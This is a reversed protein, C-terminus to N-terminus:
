QRMSIEYKPLRFSHIKNNGPVPPTYKVTFTDNDNKIIDFLVDSEHQSPTIGPSCKLGISIDGFGAKSCDVTFYTPEEAKLGSEVGPGYVRM